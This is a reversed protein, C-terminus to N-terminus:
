GRDRHEDLCRLDIRVALISVGAESDDIGIRKFSFKLASIDDSKLPDM